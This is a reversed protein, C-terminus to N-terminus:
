KCAATEQGTLPSVCPACIHDSDCTGQSLFIGKFGMDLCKSVCAGVFAGLLTSGQCSPRPEVRGIDEAPACFEAAENCGESGLNEAKAPDTVSSQPVCRGKGGCCEPFTKPKEKPRDCSVSRCAGTDTGDAPSFCPACLEGDDCTGQQLSDAKEEVSKIVRSLCRGESGGPGVCTPPLYKGAAMVSKEPACLKGSGCADLNARKDAPVMSEDVCRGGTKCEAFGSVDIPEGKYPCADEEPDPPDVFEKTKCAKSPKGIDCVGTSKKDLPNICPVCREDSDCVEDEGRDLLSKKAAVDPVCLSMCRGEGFKSKCSTPAKGGSEVLKDPVCVGDDECEGLKAAMRSSLLSKPVCRAKGGKKCACEPLTEPDAAALKKTSCSADDGDEGELEGDGVDIPTNWDPPGCAALLSASLGLVAIVRKVM